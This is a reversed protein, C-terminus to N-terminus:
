VHRARPLTDTDLRTQSPGARIQLRAQARLHAHASHASSSPLTARSARPTHASGTTLPDPLHSSLELILQRNTEPQSTAGREPSWNSGSWGARLTAAIQPPRRSRTGAGPGREPDARFGPDPEAPATELSGTVHAGGAPRRADEGVGAGQAQLPERAVRGPRLPAGRPGSLLALARGPSSPQLGPPSGPGRSRARVTLSERLNSGNGM